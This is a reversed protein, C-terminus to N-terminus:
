VREGSFAIGIEGGDGVEVGVGAGLDDEAGRDEIVVAQEHPVLAVVAAQETGGGVVLRM